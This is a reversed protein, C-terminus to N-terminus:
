AGLADAAACRFMKEAAPNFLRIIGDDDTVVFADLASEIIAALRAENERLAIDVRLRELEAGARTAFIRLIELVRRGDPMPEDHIIALHGSVTGASDVLP